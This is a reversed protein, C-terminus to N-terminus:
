RFWRVSSPRHDFSVSKDSSKKNTVPVTGDSIQGRTLMFPPTKSMDISQM